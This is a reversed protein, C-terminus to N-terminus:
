LLHKGQIQSKSDGSETVIIVCSKLNLKPEVSVSTLDTWEEQRKMADLKMKYAFAKESPLIRERQLNSDVMIIVAEDDTLERVIRPVTSLEAM